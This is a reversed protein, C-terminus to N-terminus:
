RQFSTHVITKEADDVIQPTVICMSAHSSVDRPVCPSRSLVYQSVVLSFGFVIECTM